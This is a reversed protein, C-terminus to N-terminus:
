EESMLVVCARLIVMSLVLAVSAHAHRWIEVIWYLAVLWVLGRLFNM